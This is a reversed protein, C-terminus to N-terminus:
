QRHSSTVVRLFSEREIMKCNQDNKQEMLFDVSGHADCLCFLLLRLNNSVPYKLAECEYETAIALDRWTELENGTQQAHLPCCGFDVYPHHATARM